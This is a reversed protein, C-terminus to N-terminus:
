CTNQKEQRARKRAEEEGALGVRMDQERTQQCFPVWAQAVGSGALCWGFLHLAHWSLEQAQAGRQSCNVMTELWLLSEKIRCSGRGEWLVWRSTRFNRTEQPPTKMAEGCLRCAWFPCAYVGVGLKRQKLWSLLIATSFCLKPPKSIIRM